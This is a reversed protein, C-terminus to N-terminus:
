RRALYASPQEALETLEGFLGSYLYQEQVCIMEPHSRLLEGIAALDDANAAIPKEVVIRDVGHRLMWSIGEQHSSPPSTVFGLTSDAAFTPTSETVDLAVAESGPFLTGLEDLFRARCAPDPEVGVFDLRSPASARAMAKQLCLMLNRAQRGTGFFVV